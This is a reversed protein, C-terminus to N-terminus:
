VVGFLNAGAAFYEPYEALGAMTMYGGYSGGMIGIQGVRALGERGALVEIPGPQHNEDLQM